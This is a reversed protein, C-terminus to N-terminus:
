LVRNKIHMSWSNPIYIQTYVAAQGHLTETLSYQQKSEVKPIWYHFIPPLVNTDGCQKTDCHWHPIVIGIYYWFTPTTYRLALTTDCDWNHYWLALTTDCDWYPIGIGIHYGLLITDWHWNTKHPIVTGIHCWLTLTTDCHWHPIIIGIHYWLSTLTTNHYHPM